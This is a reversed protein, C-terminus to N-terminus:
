KKINIVTGRKRNKPVDDKKPSKKGADIRSETVSPKTLEAAKQLAKEANAEHEETKSKGSEKKNLKYDIKEINKKSQEVLQKLNCTFGKEKKSEEASASPSAGALFMVILIIVPYRLCIINRAQMM